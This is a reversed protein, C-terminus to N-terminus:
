TSEARHEKRQRCDPCLRGKRYSKDYEQYSAVTESQQRNDNLM